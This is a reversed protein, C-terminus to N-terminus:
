PADGPLQPPTVPVMVSFQRQTSSFTLYDLGPKALAASFGALAVQLRDNALCALCRLRGTDLQLRCCSSDKASDATGQM